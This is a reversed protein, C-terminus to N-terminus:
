SPTNIYNNSNVKQNLIFLLGELIFKNENIRFINQITENKYVVKLIFKKNSNKYPELIFKDISDIDNIFTKKYSNGFYNILGIFITDFNNSYIIDIRLSSTCICYLIFLSITAPIVFLITIVIILLYTPMKIYEKIPMVVIIIELLSLYIIFQIFGSRSFPCCLENFYFSFFHESMKMYRSLNCSFTPSPMNTKGMYENINFLVPSEKEPSCNLFDELLFYIENINKLDRITYYIYKNDIPKEKIKNLDFDFNYKFTNSLVINRQIYDGDESLVLKEILNIAVNQLNFTLTYKTFCFENIVKTILTNNIENKILKIKNEKQLGILIFVIFPCIFIITTYTFLYLDFGSSFMFYYWISFLIFTIIFIGFFSISSGLKITIENTNSKSELKYINKFKENEPIFATNKIELNNNTTIGYNESM